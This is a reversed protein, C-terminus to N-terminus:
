HDQPSTQQSDTGPTYEFHLFILNLSLQFIFRDIGCPCTTPQTTPRTHHYPQIISSPLTTRLVYDHFPWSTGMHAVRALGFQVHPGCSRTPGCPCDVHTHLNQPWATLDVRALGIQAHPGLIKFNARPDRPDDWIVTPRSYPRYPSILG